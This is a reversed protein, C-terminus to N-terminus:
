AQMECSPSDAGTTVWAPSKRRTWQLLYSKATLYYNRYSAVADYFGDISIKCVEPMACPPETQDLLSLPPVSELTWFVPDWDRGDFRFKREVMLAASLKWLWEYNATSERVWQACPHETHEPPYIRQGSLMFTHPDVRRPLEVDKIFPSWERTVVGHKHHASSLLIANYTLAEEIHADCHM